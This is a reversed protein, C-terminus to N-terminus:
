VRGPELMAKVVRREAVDSFATQWDELRYRTALREAEPGIRRLVSLAEVWSRYASSMSFKLLLSRNMAEDWPLAVDHGGSLGLSAMRGARAAWCVAARVAGPAGSTEVTVDFTAGDAAAIVESPSSDARVETLDLVDFGLEKAVDLRAASSRRGAVVVREAGMQRAALAALLGVPGPGIVAVTDGVRVGVDDLATLAIALPECMTAAVDSVDDPVRHALLAPAVLHSAFAGDIGWGPPRKSACLHILGRRCVDCAGCFGAHQEVVVRAGMWAEAGEGTGVVKGSYEHGLVVPPYSRHEGHWLHLDTGCIGCAAVEILLWGPGPEPLPVEELGLHGDGPASKVLALM